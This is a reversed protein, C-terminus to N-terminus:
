PYKSKGRMGLRRAKMNPFVNKMMKGFDAASLPHYNLNDCFSRFSSCMYVFYIQLTMLGCKKLCSPCNLRTKKIFIYKAYHQIGCVRIICTFTIVILLYMLKLRFCALFSATGTVTNVPGKYLQFSIKLSPIESLSEITANKLQTNM